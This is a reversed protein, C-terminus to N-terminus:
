GNVVKWAVAIIAFAIAGTFLTRGNEASPTRGLWHMLFPISVLFLAFGLYVRAM